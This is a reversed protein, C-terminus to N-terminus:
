GAARATSSSPRARGTRSACDASLAFLPTEGGLRLRDGDREIRIVDGRDVNRYLGAIADLEARLAESGEAGPRAEACGGLYLDAVAHLSQRPMSDGANCLVAVSLQQEPYRALFARYSGTTGSHRVEPVGQYHGVGLGFGYGTEAGGELRGSAQM